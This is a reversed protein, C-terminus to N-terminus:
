WDIYFNLEKTRAAEPDRREIADMIKRHNAQSRQSGRYVRYLHYKQFDHILNVVPSIILRMLNNGTADVIAMHFNFDGELFAEMNDEDTLVKEMQNVAQKMRAIDEQNANVAALAANEPEIILRIDILNRLWNDPNMRAEINMSTEIGKTLNRVVFTGKAVHTEVWGKEKLVKMAERIVTRSVKYIDVLEKETPLKDGIKLNADIIQSEIMECVQEYLPKNTPFKEIEM